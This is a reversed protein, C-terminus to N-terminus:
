LPLMLPLYGQLYTSLETVAVGNARATGLFEDCYSKSEAAKDLDSLRRDWSPVQVGEYGYEAAWLTIADWSNFPALDSAFQALFLAPGEIARM